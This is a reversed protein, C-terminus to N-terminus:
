YDEHQSIIKKNKLINVIADIIEDDQMSAYNFIVDFDDNNAKRGIIKEIFNDRKTDMEKVYEIAEAQSFDKLQMIRNIRWEIPAELRINLKNPIDSLLVGASRGVIIVRGKCALRCVVARFTEIIKQDAIDYITENSFSNAVQTLMEVAKNKDNYNGAKVDEIIENTVDEIIGKDVWRWDADTKTESMYSYGTLIKSLKIAIRQASCGSQRSITIVPGPFDGTELNYCSIEKMFSKIFKDM